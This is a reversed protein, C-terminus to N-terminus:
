QITQFLVTKVNLQTHPFFVLSISFQITQILPSLPVIKRHQSKMQVGDRAAGAVLGRLSAFALRRRGLCTEVRRLKRWIGLIRRVSGTGSTVRARYGRKGDRAITVDRLSVRTFVQTLKAGLYGMCQASLNEFVLGLPMFRFGEAMINCITSSVGVVDGASNGIRIQGVDGCRTPIFTAIFTLEHKVGAYPSKM